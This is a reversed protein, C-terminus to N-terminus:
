HGPSVQCCNKAHWSFCWACINSCSLTDCLALCSAWAAAVRRLIQDTLAMSKGCFQVIIYGAWLSPHILSVNEIPTLPIVKQDIFIMSKGCFPVIPTHTHHSLTPIMDTCTLSCAHADTCTHTHKSTIYHPWHLCTLLTTTTLSQLLSVMSITMRMGYNGRTTYIATTPTM